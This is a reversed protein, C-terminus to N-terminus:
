DKLLKKFSRSCMLHNWIQLAFPAFPPPLPPSYGLFVNKNKKKPKMANRSCRFHTGPLPAPPM